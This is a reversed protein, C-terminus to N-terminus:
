RVSDVADPVAEPGEVYVAEWGRDHAGAVDAEESDGIMLRRDAPLSAEAREFPEPDPKHAGVDYSVVTTDVFGTLGAHTLKGRQWDGVGNTCVGVRFRDAAALDALTERVPDPAPMADYEAERLAAVFARADSDADVADLATEAARRYPESALSDLRQFFVDNYADAFADVADVDVADCARALVHGYDPFKLLTGDLDFWVATVTAM